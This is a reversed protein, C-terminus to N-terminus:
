SAKKNLDQVEERYHSPSGGHFKAFSRNFQSLSQFGVMFAIESIRADPKNLERKAWLVRAYNVYETLTMATSLKFQRCFHSESMGAASAAQALTITENLQRHIFEKAKRIGEPEQDASAIVLKESKESLQRGFHELLTVMSQYREPSVTQTAFYTDRLQQLQKETFHSLSLSDLTKQFDEETPTKEFVQGTKLYGVVLTGAYIPVATASMGSFCHCSLPGEVAARIMLDRNVKLCAQCATECTNLLECFSSRNAAEDTICWSNPDASVIRLPLGTASTFARQYENYAPSELLRRYIVDSLHHARDNTM